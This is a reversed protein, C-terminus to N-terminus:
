ITEVGKWWYEGNKKINTNEIDIEGRFYRSGTFSSIGNGFRCISSFSMSTDTITQSTYNEGDTSYAVTKSPQEIIIRGWYETNASISGIIRESSISENWIKLNGNEIYFDVTNDWGIINQFDTINSSTKFKVNIEIKDTTLFISCSKTYTSYDLSLINASVRAGPQVFAGGNFNKLIAGTRDLNGTQVVNLIKIGGDRLQNSNIKTESM